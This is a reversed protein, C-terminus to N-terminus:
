LPVENGDVDGLVADRYGICPSLNEHAETVAQEDTECDFYCDRPGGGYETWTLHYPYHRGEVYAPDAYDKPPM